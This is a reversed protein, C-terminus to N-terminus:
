LRKVPSGAEGGWFADGGPTGLMDSVGVQFGEGALFHDLLGPDLHSEM